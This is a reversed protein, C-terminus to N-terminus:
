ADKVDSGNALLYVGPSHESSCALMDGAAQSGIRVQHSFRM